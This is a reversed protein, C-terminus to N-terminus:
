LEAAAFVNGTINSLNGSTGSTTMSFRVYGGSGSLVSLLVSSIDRGAVSMEHIQSAGSFTVTPAARMPVDFSGAFVANSATTDIRGVMGELPRFYRRCLVLELGYPRHEFPTAVPGAELQVGTIAFINNIADLVNVQASTSYFDGTQWANATTQRTTGNMLTFCVSLGVGNTWNWTGATILGGNVTVSKFEWTDAANVTYEAIFSRDSGSNKFAICHVGTKPSRVWFSLTFTRGILDRANYGEIAQFNVYTDTADVSADATTVVTRHYTRFENGPFDSQQDITVVAATTNIVSWRDLNYGNAAPFGTARQAIEMKGNIIKNRMGALQGSNISPVTLNGTM